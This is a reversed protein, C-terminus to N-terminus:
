AVAPSSLAVYPRADITGVAGYPLGSALDELLSLTLGDVKPVGYNVWMTSRHRQDASLDGEPTYWSAQRYEPYQFDTSTLPGSAVNEGDFNGWLHSLTYNGGLESRANLRYTVSTTVGSYRRKLANTNEVVALDAVNGFSDTVTGTSLDVRQSYFDKYDRFSYD